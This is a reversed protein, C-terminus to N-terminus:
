GMSFDWVHCISDNAFIHIADILKEIFGGDLIAEMDIESFKRRAAILDCVVIDHKIVGAVPEIGDKHM